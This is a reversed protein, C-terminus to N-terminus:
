VEKYGYDKVIDAVLEKLRKLWNKYFILEQILAEAGEVDIFSWNDHDLEILNEFWYVINGYYDEDFVLGVLKRGELYFEFTTYEELMTNKISMQKFGLEILKGVVEQNEM